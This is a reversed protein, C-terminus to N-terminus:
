IKMGVRWEIVDAAGRHVKLDISGFLRETVHYKLGIREYYFSNSKYPNYVYVGLHTVVAMRGFLLEHGVLVGAKKVDILAEGNRVTDRQEALLGRDYFGEVGAVLNSKRNIRRGAIVTLSNVLYKQRSSENRQKYGLTGSLNLFNQGIDEPVYGPVTSVPRFPRQQHYNLGVVVTPINIGLNPKTTAGNSYHNLGVGLLLGLHESIAVDYEARLQLTANLRSSVILNKHNTEQDFRIPFYGLGTGMRLNLEHRATRLFAKNLYVTAAYSKGLVPNHYDYYTLAVGVKPYRYWAHWPANGTTQRQWNLEFGTPHAQVLHAVRPTHAIIFGGQVYAGLVLPGRPAGTDDTGQAQVSQGCLGLAIFAALVISGRNLRGFIVM